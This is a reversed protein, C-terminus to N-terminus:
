CVPYVGPSPWSVQAFQLSAAGCVLHQSAAQLLTQGGGLSYFYNNQVLEGRTFMSYALSLLDSHGGIMWGHLPLNYADPTLEVDSWMECAWKTQHIFILVYEESCQHSVALSIMACCRSLGNCMRQMIISSLRIKGDTASHTLLRTVKGGEVTAGRCIM